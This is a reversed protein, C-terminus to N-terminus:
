CCSGMVFLFFEVVVVLLLDHLVYCLRWDEHRTSSTCNELDEDSESNTVNLNMLDNVIAEVKKMKEPNINKFLIKKYGTGSFPEIVTIHDRVYEAEKAKNFWLEVMDIVENSAEIGHILKNGSNMNCEKVM